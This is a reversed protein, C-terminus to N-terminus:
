KNYVLNNKIYDIMEGKEVTGSRDKDFKEFIDKIKGETQLKKIEALLRNDKFNEHQLAEFFKKCEEIELFGSLDKDYERWIREIKEIIVREHDELEDAHKALMEENNTPSMTGEGSPTIARKSAQGSLMDNGKITARLVQNSKEFDRQLIDNIESDDEPGYPRRQRTEQQLDGRTKNSM